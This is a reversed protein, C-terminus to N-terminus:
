WASEESWLLGAPEWLLVLCKKNVTRGFFKQSHPM